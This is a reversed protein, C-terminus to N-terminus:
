TTLTDLDHDTAIHPPNPNIRRSFSAVPQTRNNRASVYRTNYIYMSERRMKPNNGHNM